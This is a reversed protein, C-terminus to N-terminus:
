RANELRATPGSQAAFATLIESMKNQIDAEYRRSGSLIFRYWGAYNPAQGAGLFRHHVTELISFVGM